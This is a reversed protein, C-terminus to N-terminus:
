KLIELNTFMVVLSNICISNLWTSYCSSPAPIGCMKVSEQIIM